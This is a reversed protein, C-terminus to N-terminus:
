SKASGACYFAYLSRVELIQYSILLYRVVFATKTVVVLLASSLL